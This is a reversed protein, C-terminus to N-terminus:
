NESPQQVLNKLASQLFRWLEDRGLRSESSTLVIPTDYWGYKKTIDRTKQLVANKAKQKGLKDMKTLVVVYDGGYGCSRLLDMLQEDDELPGHRGDVLHFIVRLSQRWAFYQHMFNMWEERLTKSVRAFGVGPLDVLYYMDDNVTFYNFQQTKGPTNSVKALARRNCLMNVLSSKGVNSRGCFAVEAALETPLTEMSVAGKVFSVSRVAANALFEFTEHNPEVNAERMADMVMFVNELSKTKGYLRILDNYDEQKAAAREGFMALSTLSKLARFSADVEGARLLSAQVQCLALAYPAAPSDKFSDTERLLADLCENVGISLDRRVDRKLSDSKRGRLCARLVAASFAPDPTSISSEERLRFTSLALDPREARIFARAATRYDTAVATEAAELMEMAKRCAGKQIANKVQAGFTRSTTTPETTTRAPPPANKRRPRRTACRPSNSTHRVTPQITRAQLTLPNSFAPTRVHKSALRFM